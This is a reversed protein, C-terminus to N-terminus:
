EKISSAEIYTRVYTRAYTCVCSSTVAELVDERRDGDRASQSCRRASGGEFLFPFFYETGLIELVFNNVTETLARSRVDVDCKKCKNTVYM